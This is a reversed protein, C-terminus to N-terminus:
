RTNISRREARVHEVSKICAYQAAGVVHKSLPCLQFDAFVSHDMDLGYGSMMRSADDDENGVM